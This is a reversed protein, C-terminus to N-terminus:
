DRDDPIQRIVQSAIDDDTISVFMPQTPTHMPGAQWRWFVTKSPKM